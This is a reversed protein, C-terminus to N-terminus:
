AHQAIGHLFPVDTEHAYISMRYATMKAGPLKGGPMPETGDLLPGFKADFTDWGGSLTQPGPLYDGTMRHLLNAKGYMKVLDLHNLASDTFGHGQPLLHYDISYASKLTSTSPLAFNWVTLEIPVTVATQNAATVTATGTYVGAAASMPIYIDIWVPQNRGSTVSFPFANRVEGVYEDKKPILADPWYGTRGEITSRTTINMFAEKYIMISGSPIQNGRGDTLDSVTVNVGSLNGQDATVILQFAETENRAAKLAVTTQGAKPATLTTERGIKVTAHETWVVMAEAAQISWLVMLFPVLKIAAGRLGIGKKM